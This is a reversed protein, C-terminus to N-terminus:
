RPQESGLEGLLEYRDEFRSGVALTATAPQLGV